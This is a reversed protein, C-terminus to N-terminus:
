HIAHTKEKQSPTGLAKHIPWSRAYIRAYLCSFPIGTEAAWDTLLQRKGNFEILQRDRRNRSQEVATAWRCNGPAYDGAPDIRDLTTGPLREGMDMLFTEFSLWRAAVKTGQKAYAGDVSCRKLM